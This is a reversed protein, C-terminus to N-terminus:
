RAIALLHERLESVNAATRADLQALTHGRSEAGRGGVLLPVSGLLERLRAIERIPEGTPQVISVAVARAGMMRASDALVAAPLNPGLYRVRWGSQAAVIAAMMAGFEHLEGAPTAVVIVPANGIPELSALVWALTDRVVASALHENAPTIEGRHWRDGVAVLFPHVVREIWEAAPFALAAGRLASEIAADDFRDTAALAQAVIAAARDSTETRPAPESALAALEEDSLKALMAIRHGARALNSLTTLRELDHASYLRQGGESRVPNVVGYRREWVRLVDPTLGTRRTVVKMPFQSGGDASNSDRRPVM